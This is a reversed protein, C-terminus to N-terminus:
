DMHNMDWKNLRYQYKNAADSSKCTLRTETRKGVPTLKHWKVRVLTLTIVQVERKSTALLLPLRKYFSGLQKQRPSDGFTFVKMWLAATEDLKSVSLEGFHQSSSYFKGWAEMMLSKKGTILFVPKGTHIEVKSAERVTLSTKQLTVSLWPRIHIISPYNYLSLIIDLHVPIYMITAMLFTQCNLWQNRQQQKGLDGM